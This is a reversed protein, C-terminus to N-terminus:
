ERWFVYKKLTIADKFNATGNPYLPCRLIRVYCVANGIQEPNVDTYDRYLSDCTSLIVAVKNRNGKLNENERVAKQMRYVTRSLCDVLPSVEGSRDEDAADNLNLQVESQIDLYYYYDDSGYVDENDKCSFLAVMLITMLWMYKKTINM